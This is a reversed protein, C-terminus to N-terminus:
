GASLDEAAGALASQEREVNGLKWLTSVSAPGYPPM